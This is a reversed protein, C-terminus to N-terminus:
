IKDFHGNSAKDAEQGADFVCQCLQGATATESANLELLLAALKSLTTESVRSLDPVLVDLLDRPEFKLLGGGYVRQQGAALEQVCRSNLCAVLAQAFVSRRDHPYICHFTTLNHAGAANWIFRLQRRGFVAAWIPAPERREMRYWPTRASLLYRQPLKQRVGHQLYGRDAASLNEGFNLLYTRQGQQDLLDFDDGDFVFGSIDAARGVCQVVHQQSIKHSRWTDQSVHFFKNAGTAIGRRTAALQRLPVFGPPCSESGYQLVRNWKKHSLLVDSSLRREVLEDSGVPEGLITKRIQELCTGSKVFTTRVDRKPPGKELFLLCATTLADDFVLEGHSFYVLLDVLSERLLFEKIPGGFNANLWEGPVIIAARGGPKLRRCIELIFLAYANTLRSLKVGNRRDVDRFIDQQYCLDHHRVYPPNAVIADFRADSRWTLFDDCIADIGGRAVFEVARRCVELALPDADVATVRCPAHRGLFTRVFIGPGVAPDLLTQPHIAAVYECMLQAIEPPTFFQGLQRRRQTPVLHAFSREPDSVDFDAPLQLLGSTSVGLRDRKKGPRGM